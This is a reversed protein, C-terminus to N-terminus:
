RTLGHCLAITYFLGFINISSSSYYRTKMNAGYVQARSNSDHISGNIVTPIFSLFHTFQALEIFNNSISQL